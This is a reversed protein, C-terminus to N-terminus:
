KECKSCDPSYVDYKTCYIGMLEEEPYGIPEGCRSEGTQIWRTETLYQELECM